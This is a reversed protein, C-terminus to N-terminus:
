PMAILKVPLFYAIIKTARVCHLPTEGEFNQANFDILEAHTMLEEFIETITKEREEDVNLEISQTLDDLSSWHWAPYRVVAGGISKFGDLAVHTDTTFTGKQYKVIYHM